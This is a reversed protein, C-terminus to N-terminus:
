AYGGSIAWAAQPVGMYLAHGIITLLQPHLMIPRRSREIKSLSGPIVDGGLEHGNLRRSRKQATRALKFVMTLMVIRRGCDKTRARRLRVAAFMSEIPNTTRLHIWHPAPFDYFALM